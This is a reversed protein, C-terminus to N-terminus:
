AREALRWRALSAIAAIAALGAAMLMPAPGQGAGLSLMAGIMAAGLTQGFLRGTALLGGAAASRERPANGVIMRANPSFFLSFGFAAVVLRWAIAFAGAHDPLFGLLVLGTVAITMGVLGMISPSVHDSLWGALPAVVLMTLPFPLVLLGVQEASYGMGQELRFPLAVILAASGIFAAVAAITSLGIAPRAMLDVPFVPSAKGRERRALLLASGIGALAAAIGPEVMGGHAALEVGGILLVFSGASWLGSVWDFPTDGREPDPLFRGIVLSILAFPVAAVFVWRWDAHAVIFGGLVPALANSSAVIVSNIGLGSGLRAKPYIQRILATGVSMAMGAGLAQGARIALLMPLSNALFALASAAMFIVQGTQYVRRLGLREGLNAFPLLAMVMVLQYVTVVNVVVGQEVSLERAITPLAVNAITGDLVFLATGFSIAVIAWLRRPMPLGSDHDDVAAPELAAEEDRMRLM